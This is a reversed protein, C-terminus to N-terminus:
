HTGVYTTLTANSGSADGTASGTVKVRVYKLVNSPIRFRASKAADGAGGAGTQRVVEPYVVVPSTFALDTATEVSVIQTRANPLPTVGLAPLDIQFEHDLSFQGNASQPLEIGVSVTAAAGNPLAFTKVLNADKPGTIASM